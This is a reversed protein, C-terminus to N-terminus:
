FKFNLGLGVAWANAEVKYTEGGAGALLTGFTTDRSAKAKFAYAGFADLRVNPTLDLGAGASLTHNWIVPVLTMQVLKIVEVRLPGSAAGLPIPGLGRFSGLTNNPTDRLIDEAYSYGLRLSWPGTKYQTGLLLLFQDDYVDKYTAAKSWNKWVVDAEVFWGPAVDFAGGVVVELPQEVDLNQFGPTGVTTHLINKFGYKVPSKVAASLMLAPTLQHTIGISGGMGFDHVSSTTGGFGCGAGVCGAPGLLGAFSGSPGTTGLQALGFGITLAAGVSTQPTLQKAAALNVNFSLLEVMLPLGTVTPDTSVSPITIPRNRYDTGLGADVEIGTGLHWGGGLEYSVAADPVVYGVAESKSTRTGAAGSQTVEVDPKLYAAGIGFRTGGFQTLTAPNGFVAASAEQPKTYAAGAMGGSAPKFSLNMDTGSNLAFAGGSALMLAAAGGVGGAIRLVGRALTPTSVAADQGPRLTVKLTGLPAGARQSHGNSFKM